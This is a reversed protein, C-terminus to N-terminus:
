RRKVLEIDVLELLDKHSEVLSELIRISASELPNDEERNYLGSNIVGIVECYVIRLHLLDRKDMKKFVELAQLNVENVMIDGKEM